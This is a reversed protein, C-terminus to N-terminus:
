DNKEGVISERGMLQLGSLGVLRSRGHQGWADVPNRAAYWFCGAEGCWADILVILLM